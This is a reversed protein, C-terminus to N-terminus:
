AASGVMKRARRPVVSDLFTQVVRPEFHTGTKRQLESRSLAADPSGMIKDAGPGFVKWIGEARVLPEGNPPGTLAGEEM